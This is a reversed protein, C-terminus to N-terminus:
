DAHGMFGAIPAHVSLVIDAARALRGLREAWPYDMWFKGEFDIECATFGREQLLEIAQEPSERSPVRAPGYHLSTVLSLIQTFLPSLSRVHLLDTEQERNRQARETGRPRRRRLFPRRTEREVEALVHRRRHRACPQDVPSRTVVDDDPAGPVVHDVTEAAVVEDASAEAVIDDVASASVVRDEAVRAERNLEPLVAPHVDRASVVHQDAAAASIRDHTLGSVVRDVGSVAVVEGRAVDAGVGDAAPIAVVLEEATRAGVHEVPVVAVVQQDARESVVRQVSARTVVEQVSVKRRLAFVRIRRRDQIRVRVEVDAVSVAAVVGREAALKHRAD